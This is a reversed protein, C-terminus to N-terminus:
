EGGWDSEIIEEQSLKLGKRIVESWFANETRELISEMHKSLYSSNWNLDLTFLIAASNTVNHLRHKGSCLICVRALFLLCINIIM